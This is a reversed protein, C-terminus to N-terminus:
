LGCGALTSRQPRDRVSGFDLDIPLIFYDFCNLNPMTGDLHGRLNAADIQFGNRTLSVARKRQFGFGSLNEM